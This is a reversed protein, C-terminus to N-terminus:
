GRRGPDLAHVMGSKQAVVLVRTGGGTLHRLWLLKGTQPSTSRAGSNTSPPHPGSQPAPRAQQKGRGTPKAPEPITFGERHKSTSDQGEIRINESSAPLGNVVVSPDNQFSTVSPSDDGAASQSHQWLRWRQRNDAGAVRITMRRSAQPASETKLLPAADTVTTTDSVAGVELTADLRTDSATQGGMNSRVYKKFGSATVTPPYKGAPVPISYTEQTPLVV